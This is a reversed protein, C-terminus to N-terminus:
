IADNEGGDGKPRQSKEHLHVAVQRREPDLLPRVLVPQRLRRGPQLLLLLVQILQPMIGGEDLPQDALFEAKDAGLLIDEPKLLLLFSRPALLASCPASRVVEAERKKGKVREAEPM